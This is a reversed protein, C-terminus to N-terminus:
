KGSRHWRSTDPHSNKQTRDPLVLRSFRCGCGTQGALSGYLRGHPASRALIPAIKRSSSRGSKVHGIVQEGFLRNGDAEFFFH